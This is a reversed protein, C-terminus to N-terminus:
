GYGRGPYYVCYLDNFRFWKRKQRLVDIKSQFFYAMAGQWSMENWIVAMIHKCTVRSPCNCKFTKGKTALRGLAIMRPIRYVTHVTGKGCGGSCEVWWTDRDVKIIQLNRAEESRQKFQKSTEM